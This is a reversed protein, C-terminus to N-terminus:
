GNSDNVHNREEEEEEYPVETEELRRVSVLGVGLSHLWNLLGFLAPQDRFTGVLVMKGDAEPRVVLGEFHRLRFAALHGEIRIETRLRTEKM